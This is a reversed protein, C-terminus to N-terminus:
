AGHRCGTLSPRASTVLSRIRSEAHAPSEEEFTKKWTTELGAWCSPCFVGVSDLSPTFAEGCMACGQERCCKRCLGNTEDAYSASAHCCLCHRVMAPYVVLEHLHVETRKKIWLLVFDLFDKLSTAM